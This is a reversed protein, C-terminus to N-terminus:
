PLTKDAAELAAERTLGLGHDKTAASAQKFVTRHRIVADATDPREALKKTLPIVLASEVGRYLEEAYAHAILFRGYYANFNAHEVIDTVIEIKDLEAHSSRPAM